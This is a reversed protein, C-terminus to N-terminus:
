ETQGIRTFGTSAVTNPLTLLTRGSLPANASGLRLAGHNPIRDGIGSVYHSYLLAGSDDLAPWELADTLGDGNVADHCIGIRTGGSAPLIGICRDRDPRETPQYSYILLGASTVAPFLDMGPDYTLRVIPGDAFPGDASPPDTGVIGDTHACAAVLVLCTAALRM